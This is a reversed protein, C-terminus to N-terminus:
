LASHTADYPRLVAVDTKIEWGGSVITDNSMVLAPMARRYTYLIVHHHHKVRRVADIGDRYVWQSNYPRSIDRGNSVLNVQGRQLATSGARWAGVFLPESYPRLM